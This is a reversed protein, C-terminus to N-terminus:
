LAEEGLLSVHRLPVSVCDCVFFQTVLFIGFDGLDGRASINYFFINWGAGVNSWVIFSYQLSNFVYYM